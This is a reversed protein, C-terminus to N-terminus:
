KVMDRHARGFRPGGQTATMSSAGTRRNFLLRSLQIEVQGTLPNLKSLDVDQAPLPPVSFVTVVLACIINSLLCQVRIM